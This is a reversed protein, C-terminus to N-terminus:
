NTRIWWHDKLSMKRFYEDKRRHWICLLFNAQMTISDLCSSIGETILLFWDYKVSWWGTYSKEVVTVFSGQHLSIEDKSKAEYSQNVVYPEDVLCLIFHHIVFDEIPFTRSTPMDHNTPQSDTPKLFAGPVFGMRDGNQVFWWGSFFLLHYFREEASGSCVMSINKFLKSSHIENWLCKRKRWLLLIIWVDIPQYNRQDVSIWRM